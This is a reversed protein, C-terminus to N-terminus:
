LGLAQAKLTAFEEDTLSGSAHLAALREVKSIADDSLAAAAPTAVPAAQQVPQQQAAEAQQQAAQQQAAQKQAQKNTVANATGVVV